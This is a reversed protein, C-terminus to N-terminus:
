GADKTAQRLPENFYTPLTVVVKSISKGLYAEATEKMKTLVFVGIQSPSYQQGNAELWADGNSGRVIKYPVMKM